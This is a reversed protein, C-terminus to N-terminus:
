RHCTEPPPQRWKGSAYEYGEEVGFADVGSIAADAVM